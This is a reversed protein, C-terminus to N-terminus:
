QWWLCWGNEKLFEGHFTDKFHISMWSFSLSYIHHNKHWGTLCNRLKDKQDTLGTIDIKHKRGLFGICVSSKHILYLLLSPSGQHSLCHPIQRCHRLSLNMGQTLCMGQLLSQSGVETIKGPSNWPCLGQPWLSLSVVSCYCKLKWLLLTPKGPPETTLVRGALAPAAPTTPQIGSDPLDQPPSFPLGSWHEQQSLGMSLPAQCAATWPTVLVWVPSVVCAQVTTFFLSLWWDYSGLESVYSTYILGSQLYSICM